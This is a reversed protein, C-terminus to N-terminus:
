ELGIYNFNVLTSRQHVRKKNRVRRYEPQDSIGITANRDMESLERVYFESHHVVLPGIIPCLEILLIDPQQTLNLEFTEFKM